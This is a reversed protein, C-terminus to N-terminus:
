CYNFWREIFMPAFTYIEQASKKRTETIASIDAIYTAKVVYLNFFMYRPMDTPSTM